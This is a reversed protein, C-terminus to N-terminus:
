IFETIVVNRHFGAPDTHDPFEDNSWHTHETAKLWKGREGKMKSSQTDIHRFLHDIRKDM